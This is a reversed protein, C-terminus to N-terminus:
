RARRVAGGVDELELRQKRALRPLERAALALADRHAARDHALRRHEQEVLRQRVEVRLQAHLHAELDLLQVPPQPRRAQVHRVVLDLRHRERLPHEHHVGAAGLLDARRHLDVLVGRRLEDGAEDARRRHIEEGAAGFAAAADREVVAAADPVRAARRLGPAGHGDADTGLVELRGAGGVASKEAVTSITSCSPASM